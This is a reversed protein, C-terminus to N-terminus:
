RDKLGTYKKELPERPKGESAEKELHQPRNLVAPRPAYDRRNFNAACM